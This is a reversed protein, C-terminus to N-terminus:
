LKICTEKLNRKSFYDRFDSEMKGAFGEFICNGFSCEPRSLPCDSERSKGEIAEYIDLFSIEEPRRALSFGGGPGRLSAVLGSKSLRQLVKSLHNESARLKGALEGASLKGGERAIMAM